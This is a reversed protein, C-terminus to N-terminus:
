MFTWGHIKYNFVTGPANHCSIKSDMHYFTNIKSVENIDLKNENKLLELLEKAITNLEESNINTSLQDALLTSLPALSPSLINEITLSESKSINFWCLTSIIKKIAIM